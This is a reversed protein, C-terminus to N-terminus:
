VFSCHRNLKVTETSNLQLYTESLTKKLFFFFIEVVNYFTLPEEIGPM